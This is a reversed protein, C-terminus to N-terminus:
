YSTAAAALAADPSLEFVMAFQSGDASRHSELPLSLRSTKDSYERLRVAWSRIDVIDPLLAFVLPFPNGARM